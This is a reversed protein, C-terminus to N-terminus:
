SKLSESLATADRRLAEAVLRDRVKAPDTTVAAFNQLADRAADIRGADAHKQAQDLANHLQMAGTRTVLGADRFRDVLTRVDGFSTGTTFAVTRTTTLGAQDTVTVALRHAGLPLRWLELPKGPEAPQGDVTATVAAVGSTADTATIVPTLVASDGFNQGESVGGVTVAPATKDIKVTLSGPQSVNGGSDTARYLVTTTGEASLTVPNAANAWTAGNNVSYQRSSVTGNDTASVALTVNGTYWGNAGTPAPPTLSATVAPPTKDAVGAGQFTFADVDVGGGSTVFLKGAGAPLGSLPTTVTQWGDGAPVDITAFPAADAANWRLQLRGAGHARTQVGTIGTFNVPDYALWDGADFGTVSRLGSASTDDTITVGSSADAHEGQMLKPNLIAQAEGTAAPVGNAGNDTYTVNLVGFVNETAGHGADAPTVVAGSCGTGSNVPHGHQNHGLGFAWAVRSCVPNAGDEPDTVTVAYPIADGWDFFGGNAPAPLGVTPATNGITVQESTLGHKGADDTVRLRAEVQGNETYTHSAQVGTADFTGDGDFDWEYTLASGEPDSSTSADFSVTLPAQGSSPTATMRATPTKNGQAFDIRYLGADPNQRFFGDGYELVYLSGDPGFELDMPNDWIPQGLTSLDKNPLFNELKTVPGDPGALTFAAVYDQSFEGFFAKGDWYAPFKTPSPNNADYHYVPGGMPAQGGSSRFATLEPWPQDSDKDGYWLTAPTAPPLTRLGTNWRSDNVPAACDFAPGPTLTAFDFDRYPQTNDATCYPWGSNMAKTTTQWEVYGMPGRNPDATGADPGYDGWMVAGTAKDVTMRYPNRLGMVFIEPRTLPTGPAFLNGEPITYSGDDNVHIRLIKGRLDNTNGSGRREDLGPNYGPADNIPTYGNVNPGSAPTNGGTSLYLNGQADFDVDGAVHCCQGRNTTVRIIEQETSLDLADGTWKFRSLVDYGEWQKWYSDDAGAPLREPASGAPTNLKPSYYLYVWHNEAFGPDLTVTQLGMESNQYVPITNVVKTVGTKPDTLRLEGSRATHLVRSDPLVALDIPEGVTKTLTIKEYNTWNLAPDEELASAPVALGLVPLATVAAATLLRRLAAHM